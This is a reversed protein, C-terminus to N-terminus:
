DPIPVGMEHSLDWDGGSVREVIPNSESTAAFVIHTDNDNEESGFVPYNGNYDGYGEYDYVPANSSFEFFENDFYAAAVIGLRDGVGRGYQDRFTPSRTSYAVLRFKSRPTTLDSDFGDNCYEGEFTLIVKERQRFNKLFYTRYLPMGCEGNLDVKEHAASGWIADVEKISMGTRVLGIQRPTMLFNKSPPEDRASSVWEEVTPAQGESSGGLGGVVKVIAIGIIAVLAVALCRVVGVILVGSLTSRHPQASGVTSRSPSPHRPPTATAPRPPTPSPRPRSPWVPPPEDDTFAKYWDDDDQGSSAPPTQVVQEQDHEKRKDPDSLTEYAENCEKMRAEFFPDGEHKDPHLAASLKRYAQKIEDQTADQDVGLIQYYNQSM